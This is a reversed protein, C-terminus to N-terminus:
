SSTRKRALKIIEEVPDYEATTSTSHKVTFGTPKLPRYCLDRYLRPLVQTALDPYKCQRGLARHISPTFQIAKMQVYEDRAVKSARMVRYAAAIADNTLGLKARIISAHEPDYCLGIYNVGTVRKLTCKVLLEELTSDSYIYEAYFERAAPSNCVKYERKLPDTASLSASYALLIDGITKKSESRLTGRSGHNNTDTGYSRRQAINIGEDVVDYAATYGLFKVDLLIDPLEQTFCEHLLSALKPLLSDIPNFRVLILAKGRAAEHLEFIRVIECEKNYNRHEDEDVELIVLRDPLVYVFDGRRVTPACPIVQDRYSFNALTDHRRLFLEVMQEQKKTSLVGKCCDSCATNPKKVNNLQCIGCKPAM